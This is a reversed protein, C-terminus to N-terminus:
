SGPSEPINKHAIAFLFYGAVSLAAEALADPLIRLLAYKVRGSVGKGPLPLLESKQGLVKTDVKAFGGRM